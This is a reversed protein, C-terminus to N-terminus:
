GDAAATSCLWPAVRAGEWVGGAPAAQRRVRRGGRARRDLGAPLGAERAVGGRRALLRVVPQEAAALLGRLGDQACGRRLEASSPPAHHAQMLARAGTTRRPLPSPAPEPLPEIRCPPHACARARAPWAHVTMFDIDATRHNARFDQGEQLAWPSSAIGTRRKGAGPNLYVHECTRSYFGEEGITVQATGRARARARTAGSTLAALATHIRAMHYPDIAKMYLSMEEAWGQLESGCGTCRPENMLDWAFITPDERYRIGTVTNVRSVFTRLHSKYLRRITWDTYFDTKSGATPSWPVYRDVSLWYDELCVILRLGRARAQALAYDLGQFVAEDYVGPKLQLAQSRQLTSTGTGLSFGWTRGM